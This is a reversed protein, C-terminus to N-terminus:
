DAIYIYKEFVDDILRETISFDFSNDIVLDSNERYFDEDKQNNMVSVSKEVSYGRGQSLRRIRTERDAYVYIMHDCIDKYGEEILLAAEILFLRIVEHRENRIYGDEALSIMELIEEKVAPHSIDNLLRLCDKDSFVIEALKKRDIEADMDLIEEGFGAVVAKYVRGGKKMLEKALSDAEVVFVGEKEAMYRLVMSKGSGIGGTIGVVKM